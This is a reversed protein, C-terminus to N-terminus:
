SSRPSLVSNLLGPYVADVEARRLRTWKRTGDSRQEILGAERLVRFHHSATAKTVPLAFEGCTRPEGWDALQRVMALRMPDALAQLVATIEAVPMPETESGSLVPVAHESTM